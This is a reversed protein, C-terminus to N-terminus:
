AFAFCTNRFLLQSGREWSICEYSKKDLLSLDGSIFKNKEVPAEIFNWYRYKYKVSMPGKNVTRCIYPSPLRLPTVGWLPACAHSIKPSRNQFKYKKICHNTIGLKYSKTFM